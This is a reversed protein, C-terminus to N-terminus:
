FLFMNPIPNHKRHYRVTEQWVTNSVRSDLNAEINATNEVNKKL